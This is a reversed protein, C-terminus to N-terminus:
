SGTEIEEIQRRTIEKRVQQLLEDLEGELVADINYVSINVRHDTIRNQPFNYTRIKESRDGSGIQNRRRNKESREQQLKQHEKIKARLMNLAKRKNQHQSREDQCQVVTGTPIHTIRVASDTVNVHQGGSGSARYTDVRLDKENINVEVEGAQPLVAVTCASTHIRGGTETEPVRQVRHVGSEYKLMEYVEKGEVAFIIEKLGGLGTKNATYTDINWGRKEAYKSYMRYLDACFLGAEDGGVAARIEMIIDKARDPDAPLLFERLNERSTRVKRELVQAEDMALDRMEGSEEGALEMAQSLEENLKLFKEYNRVVEKLEGYRRSYEKLKESNNIVEPLTLKKEIALFEKKLEEFKEIM